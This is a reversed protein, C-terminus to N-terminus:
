DGMVVADAAQVVDEHVTRRVKQIAVTARPAYTRNTLLVTWTKREPDVWLSTGTFGTHGFSGASMALGAAGIGREDRTDWGLARTAADPQRTTFKKVTEEALVRVGNLEGGSALMAAFRGLDSATSFLGANGANEGGLKAAIPDHVRGVIEATGTWATPACGRCDLAPDFTTSEMGLPGFVRAELLEPIPRGAARELAAYLVVFGVDSYEVREGPAARLPTAILRARAEEETGWTGAGAPLGSTHTLLHRITVEDKRGGSNEGTRSASRWEPLYRSVPADLELRGDEVLLMAATTTAVVKTLSAIDYLSSDPSVRDGDWRIRGVGAELALEAGRGVALAAGPFGEREVQAELARVASGLAAADMGVTRPDEPAKWRAAVAKAPSAAAAAYRARAEAQPTAAAPAPGQLVRDVGALFSVGLLTGVVATRFPTQHM